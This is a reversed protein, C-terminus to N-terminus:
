CILSSFMICRCWLFGWSNSYYIPFTRSNKLINTDRYYPKLSPLSELLDDPMAKGEFSGWSFWNLCFYFYIWFERYSSMWWVRRIPCKDKPIDHTSTLNGIICFHYSTGPIHSIFAQYNCVLFPRTIFAVRTNERQTYTHTCVHM